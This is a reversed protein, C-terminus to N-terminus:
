RNKEILRVPTKYKEIQEPTPHWDLVRNIQPISDSVRLIITDGINVTQYTKEFTKEFTKFLFTRVLKKNIGVDIYAGIHEDQYKDYVVGIRKHSQHLMETEFEKSCNSYDKIAEYTAYDAIDNEDPQWCLVRNIEPLSDAVQLIVADGVHLRKYVKTYNRDTEYFEHTTTHEADIGVKVLHRYYEDDTKEYVYGVQKHSHRLVSDRVMASYQEYSPKEQLKGNVYHQPVKYHEIEEHTPFLKNIYIGGQSSVKIIITDGINLKNFIDRKVEKSAYISSDTGIRIRNPSSGVKASLNGKNKSFIYGVQVHNDKKIFYREIAITPAIVLVLTGVIILAIYRLKYTQPRLSLWSSAVAAIVFFGAVSDIFRITNPWIANIYLSVITACLLVAHVSEIIRQKM